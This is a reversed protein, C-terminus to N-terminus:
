GGHRKLFSTVAPANRKRTAACEDAAELARALAKPAGDFREARTALFTAVEERKGPECAVAAASVILWQGEDGRLRGAVEEWHEGLFRWAGARTEPWALASRLIPWTERVDFMPGEPAAPDGTPLLLELASRSLAPDRFAGLALLLRGRETRDKTRVAEALIRDFLAADGRRAAVQLVAGSVEAPVRSREDLWALTLRRAETMLARDGGAGGAASVVMRRLSNVEEDDGPRPLWGLARARAAFTKRMLNQHRVRDRPSLAAPDILGLLDLSGAVVLRDESPALALGLALASDVPVDGRRALLAADTALALQESVALRAALADLGNTPLATVYYGTGGANPWVWAPCFPLPLEARPGAALACTTTVPKGAAGLRLCMPVTWAGSGGGGASLFREQTVVGSAGEAGCAVDVKVIPVGPEEVFRRLAGALEPGLEAAVAGLLDETTAVGHARSELHRKLAARWREEGAYAEFMALLSAGKDYTIANDFSGEIDHFSAVPERVRKVSPLGDAKLADARRGTREVELNRWAPELADTVPADIWSAFSENLWTDDWWAMTVLDGFWHHALEHVAISAYRQRRERSDDQPRILTLPQGLAVIGPHEMTGWYRPVVAVDCKEYPYPVGTAAELLDIMKGTVSRAYAAEGGRGKPVIFRVPVRAAGGTGGDLVDFPGVVFALLYSPLPKTEAFTFRVEAAAPEEREVPANSFAKNGPPVRLTLKWPIKAWPEDFCPFARRADIPEFFTYAYWDGEPVSYLGRSRVRDIQGTFAIVVTTVGAPAPTELVLGLFGGEARVARALRDGVTARGIELDEAHLWVVATPAELRVQYRAEGSHGEGAPDVALDLEARLPVVGAPLRLAPPTPDAAAALLALFAALAM